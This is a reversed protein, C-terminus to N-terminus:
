EEEEEYADVFEQLADILQKAQSVSLFMPAFAGDRKCYIRLNNLKSQLDKDVRVTHRYCDLFEDYISLGSDTIEKPL